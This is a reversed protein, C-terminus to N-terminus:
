SLFLATPPANLSPTGAHPRATARPRTPSGPAPKLGGAAPALPVPNIAPDPGGPSAARCRQQRVVARREQRLKAPQFHGHLLKRPCSQVAPPFPSVLVRSGECPQSAALWIRRGGLTQPAMPLDEVPLAAHLSLTLLYTYNETTETGNFFLM